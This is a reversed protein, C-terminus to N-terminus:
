CEYKGFVCDATHFAETSGNYKKVSDGFYKVYDEFTFSHPHHVEIQTNIPEFFRILKGSKKCKEIFVDPDVIHQLVNFLWIEDVVPSECEEYIERIFKIDKGEYMHETDEYRTPEVIYSPGYNKCYLLASIRASGIELITKGKLDVDIDLYRFYFDYIKLWKNFSDIVSEHIHHLKEEKQALEWRNKDISQKIM